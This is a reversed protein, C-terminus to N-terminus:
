KEQLEQREIAKYMLYYNISGTDEFLEWLTDKVSSM